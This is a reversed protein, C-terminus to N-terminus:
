CIGWKKIKSILVASDVPKLMYDDMGAELANRIDEEDSEGSLGIIPVNSNCGFDSGRIYRTTEIGDLEPMQIDMLILSCDDQMLKEIASKGSVAEVIGINHKELISRLVLRNFSSDDVLLVNVGSLDSQTICSESNLASALLSILESEVIPKSVFGQMGVKETKGRAIYDPAATHGIMPLNKAYSGAKGSRIAEAAEYGNMVPMNLNMLIADYRKKLLMDIADKGNDAEEISVNYPSLYAKVPERDDVEDDVLLLRKGSFVDSYKTVMSQRFELIEPQSVVPFDLCFETYEGEVSDCSIDGGFAKMVRKCYALGLGTGGKKGSTFYAEFLKGINESPIGPGTDRVYVRNFSDGKEIRVSIGAEPYNKIFYYANMILNFLVFVYMTEDAKILFDGKCELSLKQRDHDDEYGYEDLAKRTIVEVSLFSFGSKDIPKDKVEDLIMNIVQVGRNVAIQGQAVRLYITDLAQATLIEYVKDAHHIPLEELISQFSFKVQGLPNRMEHAISGALAQLASNKEQAVIGKRNSYSFVYGAVISFVVLLVYPPIDFQPNLVISPPTLLSFIVAAVVGVCLDFLFMLLNPVFSILVFIMFIEWYLWAEHFNNKLVMVTLIFPLVFILLTHWYVPFFRGLFDPNKLKFLVGLCLAVAILRLIISDYELQFIYKYAIYFSLHAPAGLAAAAMVNFRSVQTGRSFSTKIFSVMSM